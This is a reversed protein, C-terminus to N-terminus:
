YLSSLSSPPLLCPLLCPFFSFFSFFPFFTSYIVPALSSHASPPLPPLISSLCVSPCFCGRSSRFLITQGKKEKKGEQRTRQSRVVLARWHVSSCGNFAVIAFVAHYLALRRMPPTSTPHMPPVHLECLATISATHYPHARLLVVFVVTPDREREGEGERGM